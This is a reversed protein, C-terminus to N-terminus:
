DGPVVRAVVDAPVIGARGFRRGVEVFQPHAARLDVFMQRASDERGAMAAVLARWLLQDPEHKADQPRLMELERDATLPDGDIALQFARVVDHYRSLNVMLRDLGEVPRASDDM